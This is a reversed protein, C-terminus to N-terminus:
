PTPTPEKAVLVWNGGEKESDGVELFAAAVLENAGVVICEVELDMNQRFLALERVAEDSIRAIAEVLLVCRSPKDAALHELHRRFAPLHEPDIVGRLTLRSVGNVYEYRADFRDASPSVRVRVKVEQGPPLHVTMADADFDAYPEDNVWVDTLRVRGPPLLDPAVRLVGDPFSVPKPKFHLELPEQTLLLNTYVTALYCIEISHYGSMSHSAKLRENGVLYPLGSALVNFYVGGEDHDLFMANYFAASERALRLHEPNGLSGALILYALVAQEQQWWAKRDHFSFRHVTQGDKLTRDM